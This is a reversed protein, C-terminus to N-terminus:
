RDNCQSKPNHEAANIFQLSREKSAACFNKRTLFMAIMLAVAIIMFNKNGTFM